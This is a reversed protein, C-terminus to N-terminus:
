HLSPENEKRVEFKNKFLPVALSRWYFSDLKNPAPVRKLSIQSPPYPDFM